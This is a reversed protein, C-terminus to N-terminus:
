KGLMMNVTQQSNPVPMTAIAYVSAVLMMALILVVGVMYWGAEPIPRHAKARLTAGHYKATLTAEM